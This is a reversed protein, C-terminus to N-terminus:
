SRSCGTSRGRWPRTMARCRNTFRAWRRGLKDALRWRAPACLTAGLLIPPGDEGRLLCFDEQALRGCLDLPHLAPRAVDWREGTLLNHLHDGDRRFLAPHHLALHAALLTLLEAAPAAAGPLAAFVEGPRSALLARKAALDAAFNGDPELWDAPRLPMLGMALRFRGDAFPLYPAGDRGAGPGDAPGDASGRAAM